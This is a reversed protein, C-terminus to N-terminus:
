SLKSKEQLFGNYNAAYNMCSLRLSVCSIM